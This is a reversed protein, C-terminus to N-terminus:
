PIYPPIKVFIAILINFKSYLDCSTVKTFMILSTEIKLSLTHRQITQILIYKLHNARKYLYLDILV